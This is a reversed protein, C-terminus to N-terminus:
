ETTLLDGDETIYDDADETIFFAVIQIPTVSPQPNATFVSDTAFDYNPGFFFNHSLMSRWGYMLRLLM